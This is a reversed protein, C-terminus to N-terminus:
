SSPQSIEVAVPASPASENGSRDMSTVSYWYRHGLEVSTDRYAPSLLLEPTLLLGHTGQQESKYVRYGALDTEPNISWSLDVEAANEGTPSVVNAVLGQPVTPPFTDRPTVIAPASDSSELSQGQSSIVSRVSYLYTKGFDFNSDRFSTAGTSSLLSLPSIWKAQTLDNEATAASAPDLQGRYVQYETISVGPKGDSSKTPAQWDLEVATETVTSKLTTIREPVSLMRLVVSNSEASPRKRSARTRVRYVFSAGNAARLDESSLHDVLQMKEAV